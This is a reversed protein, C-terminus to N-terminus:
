AAREMARPAAILARFRFGDRANLGVLALILAHDLSLVAGAVTSLASAPDLHGVGLRLLALPLVQTAGLFGIVAMRRSKVLLLPHMRRTSLDAGILAQMAYLPASGVAFTALLDRVAEVPLAAPQLASLLDLAVSALCILATVGASVRYVSAPIM